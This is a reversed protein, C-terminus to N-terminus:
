EREGTSRGTPMEKRPHGIPQPTAKEDFVENM